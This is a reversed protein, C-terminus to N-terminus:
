ESVEKSSERDHSLRAHRRSWKGAKREQLIGTAWSQFWPKPTSHDVRTTPLRDMCAGWSADDVDTATTMWAQWKGRAGGKSGKSCATTLDSGTESCSSSVAAQTDDPNSPAEVLGGDSTM